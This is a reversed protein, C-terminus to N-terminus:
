AELLQVWQKQIAEGSLHSVSEAANQKCVMYLAEDEILRRMARGLAGVNHNEVLLGNYENTIIERPGSNCDVSVVPTGVSLSEAVSMPFGEYRSSLITFRAKKVIHFPNKRFPIIEVYGDLSMSKILDKIFAGSPGDGMIVLRYGSKFVGSEYFAQLMLSFNKVKEELRGFYLIFKDPCDESKDEEKVSAVPNYITTTNSLRYTNKVAEEITKSVCIIRQAKAYFLRAWFRSAPFYSVLHYSHVMLFVKRQRYILSTLLERIWVNRTRNDVIIEINHQRLYNRLLIGKRIKKFIGSNGKCEIGLNYLNGCYSFDIVDNIIIHHIEFGSDELLCSLLGAFREAGGTGLSFSVVAIKTKPNDM